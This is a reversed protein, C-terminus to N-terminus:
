QRVFLASFYLAYMKISYILQNLSMLYPHKIGLCQIPLPVSIQAKIYMRINTTIGAAFIHGNLTRSGEWVASLFIDTNYKCM